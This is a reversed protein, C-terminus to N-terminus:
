SKALKKNLVNAWFDKPLESNKVGRAIEVLTPQSRQLSEQINSLSFAEKSTHKEPLKLSKVEWGYPKLADNIWTKYEEGSAFLEENDGHNLQYLELKTFEKSAVEDEGFKKVVKVNGNEPNFGNIIWDKEIIGDQSRVSVRKGLLFEFAPKETENKIKEQIEKEPNKMTDNDLFQEFDDGRKIATLFGVFKQNVPNAKEFELIEESSEEKDAGAHKWVIEVADEPLGPHLDRYNKFDTYNDFIMLGNENNDVAQTQISYKVGEIAGPAGEELEPNIKKFWEKIPDRDGPPRNEIKQEEAETNKDGVIPRPELELNDDAINYM